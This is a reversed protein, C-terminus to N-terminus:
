KGIKCILGGKIYFGYYQAQLNAFGAQQFWLGVHLSLIESLKNEYNSFLMPETEHNFFFSDYNTIGVGINWKNDLDKLYFAFNYILNRWEKKSKVNSSDALAWQSMAENSLRWIRSNNGITGKFHGTETSLKIVFDLERMYKSFPKHYFGGYIKINHNKIAIEREVDIKSANIISNDPKILALETGIGFNWKDFQYSPCIDFNLYDKSKAQNQGFIFSSEIQTQSKTNNCYIMFVSLFLSAFITKM